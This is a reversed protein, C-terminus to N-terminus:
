SVPNARLLLTYANPNHTGPCGVQDRLYSDIHIAQGTFGFRAFSERTRDLSLDNWFYDEDPVVRHEAWERMNFFGACIGTRTVRCVEAVAQEMGELSLHEFLDHVFCLDFSTDGAPLAFANGCEFRAEPFLERANAVNKECLDVGFYDVLRTLGYAHLFRYDNASGCAPEIVSPRPAPEAGAPQGELHREIAASWLRQFTNASTADPQLNGSVLSAGELFTQIFNPIELGCAQSPLHRFTHLVFQPIEIGEANDARRRLAYLVAELEEPESAYHLLSMLWNMVGGFRHEQEMLPRFDALGGAGLLFHRSLISQANIRPDEVGSVLYDRLKGSDHRMWSRKLNETEAQLSGKM